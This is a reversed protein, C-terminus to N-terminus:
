SVDQGSVARFRQKNHVKIEDDNDVLDLNSGHEVFLQFDLPVDAAAKIQAGTVEDDPLTVERNNVFVNVTKPPKETAIKDAM